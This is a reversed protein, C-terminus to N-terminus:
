PTGGLSAARESAFRRANEDIGQGGLAMRYHRVAQAPQDLQEMAIALGLQWAAQAPRLAVLQRYSNASASWDGVQQYLAALLAHYDTDSQLEPAHQQLTAVAAALEGVQLQGRALLERLQADFPRAQLQAPLWALLATTDGAALYARALWLSVQPNNPQAQHLAQLQRIAQLHDGTELAQRAETLSDPKHSGISLQKAAARVPQDVPESPTPAVRVPEVTRTKEPTEAASAERTVWDPLQAADLEAPEAFPFQTAQEAVDRSQGLPVELWLQWRDGASELRDSVSLAEGFGILLVQVDKGQAEIRWSLSQGDREIRGSRAEGALQVDSLRFSVSGSADSRQYSISRDLLLQLVFRRGDNQPLVDLLHTAPTAEVIPAVPEVLAAVPEPEPRAFSFFQAALLALVVAVALVGTLVLLWRRLRENRQRRAAGGEDVAHIAGLQQREAPAARRNELDRLMDNVLSV